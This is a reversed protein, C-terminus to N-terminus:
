PASGSGRSYLVRGRECVSGKQLPGCSPWKPEKEKVTTKLSLSYPLSERPVGPPEARPLLPAPQRKARGPRRCLWLRPVSLLSGLARTNARGNSHLCSTGWSLPWSPTGETFNLLLGTALDLTQTGQGHSEQLYLCQRVRKKDVLPVRSKLFLHWHQYEM